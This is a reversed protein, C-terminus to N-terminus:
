NGCSFIGWIPISTTKSTARIAPLYAKYQESSFLDQIGQELKDTIEKLREGPKPYQAM